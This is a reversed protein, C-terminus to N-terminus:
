AQGLLARAAATWPFAVMQVWAGACDLSKPRFGSSMLFRPLVWIMAMLIALVERVRRRALLRELVSRTGSALLLNFGIFILIALLMRPFAALGGAAPNRSLGILGGTLLLLMEVGTTLRLLVEVLFLQRHPVPY